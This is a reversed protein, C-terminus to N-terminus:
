TGINSAPSIDAFVELMNGDPDRFFVTRHGWPQDTPPLVMAVGQAELAATWRDVDELDVRFALQVGLTGAPPSPDHFLLGRETLTLLTNGIRYSIWQPGLEHDIPFKMTREYFERMRPLNRAFLITYELQRIPVLASM